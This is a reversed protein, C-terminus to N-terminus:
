WGASAAPKRKPKTDHAPAKGYRRMYHKLAPTASCGHAFVSIAITALIAPALPRVASRSHELAFLLYYFAGVGRIGMWATMIRQQRDFSSGYLSLATGIPRAVLLLFLAPWIAHWDLLERWHASVVSGVLLMLGLEVIREIEVAFAMMSEAMYAHALEPSTAAERKQGREVDALAESPMQERTADLEEHRLAVGAAFVAVFAYTHAMLAAGYCLAMLGIALFGELGVAQGFRTRLRTVIRVMGIGCAWGIAAAGSLGWAVALLFTAPRDSGLSPWGCLALGILAVPYASGDNCGGEGSLAFRLPEDDGAERVRLENALVPDTPALAAALVLAPGLALGGWLLGAGAVLAVTALMAPFGLRLPLRWLPDRLPLRLHMGIAMLSVVLGTEGVVRLSRVDSDLSVPLLNACAPGILFGVVLYVMAGSLPLRAVLGRGLAMAVLLAGVLLFWLAEM